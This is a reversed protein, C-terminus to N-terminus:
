VIRIYSSLKQISELINITTMLKIQIFILRSIESILIKKYNRCLLVTILIIEVKFM